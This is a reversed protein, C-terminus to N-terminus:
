TSAPFETVIEQRCKSHTIEQHCRVSVCMIMKQPESLVTWVWCGIPMNWRMFFEQFAISRFGIELNNDLYSFSNGQVPEGSNEKLMHRHTIEVRPTVYNFHDQDLPIVGIGKQSMIWLKENWELISQIEGSVIGDALTFVKKVRYRGRDQVLECLGGSTAIWLKDLSDLFVASCNDEPLGSQKNIPLVNMTVPDIVLVGYGLTAVFVQSSTTHIQTVRVGLGEHLSNLARSENDRVLYLGSTTGVWIDGNPSVALATNRPLKESVIRGKGSWDYSSIENHAVWLLDDNVALDGNNDVTKVVSGASGYVQIGNTVSALVHDRWCALSMIEVNNGDQIFPMIKWQYGNQQEIVHVGGDYAGIYLRDNCQVMSTFKSVDPINEAWRNVITPSPIYFLGGEISSLWIGGEM